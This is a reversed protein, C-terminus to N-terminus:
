IYNALFFKAYSWTVDLEGWEDHPVDLADWVAKSADVINNNCPLQYDHDGDCHMTSDCEDVVKLELARGM